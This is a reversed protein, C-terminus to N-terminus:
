SDNYDICDKSDLHSLIDNNELLSSINELYKEKGGFLSLIFNQSIVSPFNKISAYDPFSSWKYEKLYEMSEKLGLLNNKGLPNLHIYHPIYKLQEDSQIHKSKYRGQFLSGSRQYKENFLMTYGTGLKQMFKSIGDDVKQKLLLHYHNPMLVFALIDVYANRSKGIGITSTSGRGNSSSLQSQFNRNTNNSNKYDNFIYLLHIFYRYESDDQFIVRKDVGRNYIHFIENTPL